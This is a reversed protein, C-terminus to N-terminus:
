MTLSVYLHVLVEGPGPEPTPVNGIEIALKGPESYLCAKHEQPIEVGAM